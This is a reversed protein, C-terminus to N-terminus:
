GAFRVLVPAPPCTSRCTVVREHCLLPHVGSYAAILRGEGGGARRVPTGKRGSFSRDLGGGPELRFVDVDGEPTGEFAAFIRGRRDIAAAEIPLSPLRVGGRGFQRDPTGDGRLRLLFGSRNPAYRGSAVSGAIDIEGGRGLMLANVFVGESRRLRRLGPLHVFSRDVRGDALVRVLYPVPHLSCCTRGALLIRGRPLVAM